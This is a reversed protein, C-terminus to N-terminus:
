PCDSEYLQGAVGGSLNINVNGSYGFGGPAWAAQTRNLASDDM